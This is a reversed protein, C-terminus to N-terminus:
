ASWTEAAEALRRQHRFVSTMLLIGALAMVAAGALAAIHIQTGMREGSVLPEIAVFGVPLLFVLDAAMLGAATSRVRRLVMLMLIGLLVGMVLLSVGLALYHNSKDYGWPAPDLADFYAALYAGGLGLSELVVPVMLIAGFRAGIGHPRPRATRASLGCRPCEEPAAGTALFGCRICRSALPPRGRPASSM